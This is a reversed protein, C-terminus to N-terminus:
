LLGSYYYNDWCEQWYAETDKFCVPCQETWNSAENNYMTNMCRNEVDIFTGCRVCHPGYWFRIFQNLATLWRPTPLPWWNPRALRLLWAPPAYGYRGTWTRSDISM